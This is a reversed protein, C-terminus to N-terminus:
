RQSGLTARRLRELKANREQMKRSREEFEAHERAMIEEETM